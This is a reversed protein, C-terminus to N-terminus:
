SANVLPLEEQNELQPLSWSPAEMDLAQAVLRTIVRGLPLNDQEAITAVEAHLENPLWIHMGVRPGLSPRGVKRKPQPESNTM